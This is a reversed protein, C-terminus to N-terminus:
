QSLSDSAAEERRPAPRGIYVAWDEMMNVRKQFLDGRRYAAEVANSVKHALAMEAAENAYDTEEACWDRFSSRFGHTTYADAHRRMLMSLAMDTMQKKSVRGIFVLHKHRGKQKELVKIAADSLPVRHEREAKMRSDPITWLKADMDIESWRAGLAEGSRCATLITFELCRASDGPIQALVKMFASVEAYPMAAFHKRNAVKKPAPLANDLFGKFRAPNPRDTLEHFAAYDMIAEIRGRVRSATEHHKVWIPKLIKLIEDKTIDAPAMHGIIPEAHTALTNVWQERHKLNKWGDRHAEIYEAAVMSFTVAAKAKVQAKAIAAEKAAIKKEIPDAGAKVERLAEQAAVRAEKPTVREYSGLGLKHRKGNVQYRLIWSKSGSPKVSLYLGGGDAHLGPKAHKIQGTTLM